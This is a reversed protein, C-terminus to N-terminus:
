SGLKKKRTIILYIFGGFTLIGFIIMFLTNHNNSGAIFISTPGDAGGIVGISKNKSIGISKNLKYSLYAPMIYDLGIMLITIVLNVITLVWIVKRFKMRKM